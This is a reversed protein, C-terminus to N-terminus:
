RKQACAACTGYLRIEHREARVGAAQSLKRTLADDVPVELDVVAGCRDCVFHHHSVVNAEYRDFSSGFAMRRVLGHEVLQGLNRYVTGMSVHPSERRMRAYVWEATPHSKTDRLIELIRDRQRSRRLKTAEDRHTTRPTNM